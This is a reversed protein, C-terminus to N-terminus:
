PSMAAMVMRTSVIQIVATGALVVVAAGVLLKALTIKIDHQGDRLTDIEAGHSNLRTDFTDCKQEIM